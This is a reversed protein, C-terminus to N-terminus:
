QSTSGREFCPGIKVLIQSAEIYLCGKPRYLLVSTRALVLLCQGTRSTRDSKSICVPMLDESILRSTLSRLADM